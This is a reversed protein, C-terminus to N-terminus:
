VNLEKADEGTRLSVMLAVACHLKLGDRDSYFAFQRLICIIKGIRFYAYTQLACVDDASQDVSMLGNNLL